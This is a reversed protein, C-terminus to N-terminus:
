WIKIYYSFFCGNKKDKPWFLICIINKYNKNFSKLFNWRYWFSGGIPHRLTKHPNMMMLTVTGTGMFFQFVNYLLKEIKIYLWRKGLRKGLYMPIIIIKLPNFYNVKCTSFVYIKAKQKNFTDYYLENEM